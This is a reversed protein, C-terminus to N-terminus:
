EPDDYYIEACLDCVRHVVNWGVLPSRRIGCERCRETAM